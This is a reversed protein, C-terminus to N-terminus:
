ENLPVVILTGYLASDAEASRVGALDVVFRYRGPAAICLRAETFPLLFESAYSEGDRTPHFREPDRCTTGVAELFRVAATATTRNVWRVDTGAPVTLEAPATAEASTTEIRFEAPDGERVDARGPYM